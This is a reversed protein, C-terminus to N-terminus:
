KKDRKPKVKAVVRYRHKVGVGGYKKLIDERLENFQEQSMEITDSRTLTTTASLIVRM